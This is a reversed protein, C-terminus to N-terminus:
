KAMVVAVCMCDLNRDSAYLRIRVTYRGNNQPSFDVIAEPNTLTDSAVVNNNSDLVELDVDKADADGAAIFRYRKGSNLQMSFIPIWKTTSQKLWGGGISFENATLNYGNKNATDVHKTLRATAETIYKGQGTEQGHANENTFVAFLSVLCVGVAFSWRMSMLKTKM